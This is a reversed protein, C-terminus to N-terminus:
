VSYAARLIRRFQRPDDLLEEVDEECYGADLLAAVDEPSVGLGGAVTLLEDFASWDDDYWGGGRYMWGSGWGFPQRQRKCFYDLNTTDFQAKTIAGDPRIKLIDGAKTVIKREPRGLFGSYKTAANLIEETSAYCLLGLKDYCWVALPSNGKVLYLSGADDLITFSFTGELKEAMAAITNTSLEKAQELLQVAVYSDTQVPTNPLKESKHLEQDNWIVGNHALAFRTSGATGVFPHNNRNDKESGQTTMRIHGMLVRTDMPLHFRLRRARCARKTIKLVGGTNYAVGTADTGRVESAAGLTLALRNLQKQTLSHKVDLFGFLGCM